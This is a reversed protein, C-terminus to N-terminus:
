TIGALNENYRLIGLSNGAVAQQNFFKWILTGIGLRYFVKQNYNHYQM